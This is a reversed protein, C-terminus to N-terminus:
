TIARDLERRGLVELSQSKKILSRKIAASQDFPQVISDAM